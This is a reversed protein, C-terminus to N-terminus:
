VRFVYLSGRFWKEVVAVKQVQSIRNPGKGVIQQHPIRDHLAEVDVGLGRQHTILLKGYVKPDM